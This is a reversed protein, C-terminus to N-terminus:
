FYLIGGIDLIHGDYLCKISTQHKQCFDKIAAYNRHLRINGCVSLTHLDMMGCCGGLFGYSFGELFIAPDNEIKLCDIQHSIAAQYISPDSTIIADQLLVTNCRTYGQSVSLFHINRDQCAKAVIPDTYKTNHIALNGVIAINYAIDYPYTGKLVTDGKLITFQPLEKQYYPYSEPSAVFVQPGIPCIQIDPHSSIAPYLSPISISEIINYGNNSLNSKVEDPAKRDIIVHNM